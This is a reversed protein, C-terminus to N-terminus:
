SEDILNTLVSTEVELLSYVPARPVGSLSVCTIGGTHVVWRNLDVTTNDVEVQSVGGKVPRFLASDFRTGTIAGDTKMLMSYKPAVDVYLVPAVPVSLNVLCTMKACISERIRKLLRESSISAAEDVRWNLYRVGKIKPWTDSTDQVGLVVVVEANSQSELLHEAYNGINRRVSDSATWDDSPCILVNCVSPPKSFERWYQRNIIINRTNYLRQKKSSLSKHGRRYYFCYRDVLSIKHKRMKMYLDFGDQCALDEDYGGKKMFSEKKILSCAGHIPEDHYVGEGVKGRPLCKHKGYVTGSVDIYYFNPFVIDPSDTVICGKMTEIFDVALYDDADLRCIYEGKALKLMRNGVRGLSENPLEILAVNNESSFKQLISLSNDSSGNDVLIIEFDRDSQLLLSELCKELFQAYNYNLVYVSILM